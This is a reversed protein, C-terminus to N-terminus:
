QVRELKTVPAIHPGHTTNPIDKKNTDPRGQRQLAGFLPMLLGRGEEKTDKSSGKANLCARTTSPKGVGKRGEGSMNWVARPNITTNSDSKRVMKQFPPRPDRALVNLYISGTRLGNEPVLARQDQHEANNHIQIPHPPSHNQLVAPGHKGLLVASPKSGERPKPLRIHSMWALATGEGEIFYM